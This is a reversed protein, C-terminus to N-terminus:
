TRGLCGEVSESATAEASNANLRKCEKFLLFLIRTVAVWGNRERERELVRRREKASSKEARRSEADKFPWDVYPVTNPVTFSAEPAETGPAM